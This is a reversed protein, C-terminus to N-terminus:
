SFIFIVQCSIHLRAEHESCYNIKLSCSPRKEKSLGICKSASGHLAWFFMPCILLNNSSFMIQFSKNKEIQKVIIVETLEAHSNIKHQSCFNCKNIYFTAGKGIM